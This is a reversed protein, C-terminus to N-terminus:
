KNADLFNWFGRSTGGYIGFELSSRDIGMRRAYRRYDIFESTDLYLLGISSFSGLHWHRVAKPERHFILLVNHEQNYVPAPIIDLNEDIIELEGTVINFKGLGSPNIRFFFDGESSVNSPFSGRALYRVEGTLTNKAMIRNNPDISDRGVVFILYDGHTELQTFASIPEDYVKVAEGDDIAWLHGQGIFYIQNNILVPHPFISRDDSFKLISAGNIYSYIQFSEQQLNSERTSFLFTSQYAYSYGELTYDRVEGTWFDITRVYDNLGARFFFTFTGEFGYQERFQHNKYHFFLSLGVGILFM